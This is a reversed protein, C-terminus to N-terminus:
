VKVSVVGKGAGIMVLVASFRYSTGPREVLRVPLSRM